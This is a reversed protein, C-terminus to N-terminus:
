VMATGGARTGAITLTNGDESLIAAQLPGGVGAVRKVAHGMLQLENFVEDPLNKTVELPENGETHLRPADLTQAPSAKFDLLGITLQVTASPIRTGGALGLAGLPKGNKVMLLPSMNHLMRKGPEANNPSPAGWTFRSMGHALAVGLGEIAVRAGWGGGNTATLSVMNREADVAVVNATHRSDDKPVPKEDRPPGSRIREARVLASMESLMEAVPPHVFDPDGLHQRREDWCLKMAEALLEFYAAGWPERGALDFSELTKLIALTTVGESPPPPAFLEVGHYSVRVPEVLSANFRSFDEEALVGGHAQVQKVIARPIDGHYLANPDDALRRLLKGLDAQVWREGAKPFGRPAM